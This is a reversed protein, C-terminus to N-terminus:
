GHHAILVPGTIFTFNLGTKTGQGIALSNRVVAAAMADAIDCPFITHAADMFQQAPPAARRRDSSQARGCLRM